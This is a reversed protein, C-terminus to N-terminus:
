EGGPTRLYARIAEDSSWGGSAESMIRAIDPFPKRKRAVDIAFAPMPKGKNSFHEGHGGHLAKLIMRVFEVSNRRTSRREPALNKLALNVINTAAELSDHLMDIGVSLEEQALYLRTSAEQSAPNKSTCMRLYLKEIRGLPKAMEKLKERVDQMRPGPACRWGISPLYLELRHVQEPYLGLKLLEERQEATFKWRM